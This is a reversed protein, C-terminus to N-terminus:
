RAVEQLETVGAAELFARTATPDFRPDNADVSVFLQDDSAREFGVAQMTPHFPRPLRALWWLGLFTAGAAALVTGEFIIPVYAQFAFFPKGSINQPYDVGMTWMQLAFAGLAGAMGAALTIWPLPSRDLGMARDLGHVPFPSHADFRRYGAGRLAECVTLLAAPSEVRGVLGWPTGSGDGSGGRSVDGYAGSPAEGSAERPAEGYVEPSAESSAGRPAEGFGEPSVKSSAERPAEGRAEPPAEFSMGAASTGTPLTAEATSESPPMEPSPM